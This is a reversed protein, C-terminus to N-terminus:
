SGGIKIAPLNIRFVAGQGPGESEAELHGGFDKIIKYAISLGLGTGEGVKKTTFFPEFIRACDEKKIGCGNDTIEIVVLGKEELLFTKFKLVAGQKDRLGWRANNLIDLIVQEFSSVGIKVLPLGDALEKIIKIEDFKVQSDALAIIKELALNIEVPVSPEKELRSFELLNQVLVKCRLASSEIIDLFERSEALGMVKNKELEMKLLQVNNLVGTLPNNIGHAIGGTLLGVAAMKAQQILQAQAIRLEENTKLIRLHSEELDVTREKVKAELLRKEDILAEQATKLRVVMNLFGMQLEGIEDKSKVELHYDLEGKGLRKMSELLNKIPLTIGKVMFLSLVVSVFILSILMWMYRIRMQSATIWVSGLGLSLSAVADNRLNSLEEELEALVSYDDIEWNVNGNLINEIELNILGYYKKFLAKVKLARGAELVDVNLRQNFESINDSTKEFYIKVSEKIEALSSLGHVHGLQGRLEKINLVSREIEAILEIEPVNHLEINRIIRNIRKTANIYYIGLVLFIVILIFYSFLIKNKLRLDRFKIM